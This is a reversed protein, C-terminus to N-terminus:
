RVHSVPEVAFGRMRRHRRMRVWARLQQIAVIMVALWALTGASTWFIKTWGYAALKGEGFYFRRTSLMRPPGDPPRALLFECYLHSTHTAPWPPASVVAMFAYEAGDGGRFEMMEGCLTHTGTRGLRNGIVTPDLAAAYQELSTSGTLPLPRSALLGRTQPPAVGRDTVHESIEGPLFEYVSAEYPGRAALHADATYHLALDGVSIVAAVDRVRPDLAPPVLWYGWLWKTGVTAVVAASLIILGVIAGFRAHGSLPTTVTAVAQPM